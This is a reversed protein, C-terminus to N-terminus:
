RIAKVAERKLLDNEEKLFVHDLEYWHEGDCTHYDCKIYKATEMDNDVGVYINVVPDRTDSLNFNEILEDDSMNVHFIVEKTKTKHNMEVNECFVELM